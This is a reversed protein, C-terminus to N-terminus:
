RQRLSWITDLAVTREVRAYELTSRGRLIPAESAKPRSPPQSAALRLEAESRPMQSRSTASLTDAAFRIERARSERGAIEVTKRHFAKAHQRQSQSRLKTVKQAIRTPGRLLASGSAPGTLKTDPSLILMDATPASGTPPALTAVGSPRAPARNRPPTQPSTIVTVAAVLAAAGAGTLVVGASSKLPRRWLLAPAEFGAASAGLVAAVDLDTQDVPSKM